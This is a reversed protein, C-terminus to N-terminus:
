KVRYENVQRGKRSVKRERSVSQATVPAQVQQRYTASAAFRVAGDQQISSTVSVSPLKDTPMRLTVSREHAQGPFIAGQWKLEGAVVESGEGPLVQIVFNESPLSTTAYVVFTAIEGKNVPSVPYISVEVPTTAKISREEAVALQISTLSVLLALAINKWRM